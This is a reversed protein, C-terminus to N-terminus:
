MRHEEGRSKVSMGIRKKAIKRCFLKLDARTGRYDLSVFCEQISYKKKKREM